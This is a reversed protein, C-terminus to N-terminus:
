KHVHKNGTKGASNERSLVRMTAALNEPSLIRTMAASHERSLIRTTGASNERSLTGTKGASKLRSRMRTTGVSNERSLIRTTAASNERSLIRTTAASNVRSRTGTTGASNERTYSKKGQHRNTPERRSIAASPTRQGQDVKESKLSQDDDSHESKLSMARSSTQSQGSVTSNTRQWSALSRGQKSLRDSAEKGKQRSRTLRHGGQEEEDSIDASMPEPNKEALEMPIGCVGTIEEMATNREEPPHLSRRKKELQKATRLETPMFSTPTQTAWVGGTSQKSLLLEPKRSPRTPKPLSAQLSSLKKKRRAFEEELEEEEEGWLPKELLRFHHGSLHVSDEYYKSAPHEALPLVDSGWGEDVTFPVDIKQQVYESELTFDISV